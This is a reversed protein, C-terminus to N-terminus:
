KYQLLITPHLVHKLTSKPLKKWMIGLIWWTQNPALKMLSLINYAWMKFQPSVPMVWIVWLRLGHRHRCSSKGTWNFNSWWWTLLVWVAFMWVKATAIGTRFWIRHLLLWQIMWLMSLCHVKWVFRTGLFGCCNKFLIHGFNHFCEVKLCLLFLGSHKRLICHQMLSSSFLNALQSLSPIQRLTVTQIRVWLCTRLSPQVQSTVPQTCFRPNQPADLLAITLKASAVGSTSQLIMFKQHLSCYDVHQPIIWSLCPHIDQQPAAMNKHFISSNQRTRCFCLKWLQHVLWWTGLRCSALLKGTLLSTMMNSSWAHIFLAGSLLPSILHSLFLLRLGLSEFGWDM